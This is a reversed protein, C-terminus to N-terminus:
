GDKPIPTSQFMFDQVTLPGGARIVRGEPHTHISVYLALVERCREDVAVMAQEAWRRVERADKQRWAEWAEARTKM